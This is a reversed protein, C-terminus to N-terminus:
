SDSQRAIQHEHMSSRCSVHSQVICQRSRAVGHRPWARGRRLAHPEDADHHLPPPLTPPVEKFEDYTIIGDKDEDVEDIMAQLADEDLVEGFHKM